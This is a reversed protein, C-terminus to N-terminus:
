LCRERFDYLRDRQSGLETESIDVVETQYGCIDAYSEYMRYLEQAFLAAEEGGAGSRIEMYVNKDDNPDGPILLLKLKEDAKEYKLEVAQREERLLKRMEADSNDSVDYMLQLEDLEDQLEAVLRIQTVIPELESQEKVVSVYLSQNGYVDPNALEAMLEEYRKLIQEFQPNM